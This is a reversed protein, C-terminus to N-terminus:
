PHTKYNRPNTLANTSQAETKSPILAGEKKLAINGTQHKYNRSVKKNPKVYEFHMQNDLNKERAVSAKYPNKYNHVSYTPDYYTPGQAAATGAFLALVICIAFYTKM